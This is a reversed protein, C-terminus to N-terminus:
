AGLVRRYVALTADAAGEWSFQAAQAVARATVRVRDKTAAQWATALGDAIADIRMPDVLFAADGAVEPMSSAASTVTAAGCAMAEVVPLGFGEYLSVYAVVRAGTLLGALDESPVYGLRRIRDHVPSAEIAALISDHRWGMGGALVLRTAPPIRGSEALLEFAHILRRHNKRPELTGLALIFPLDEVGHNRTARVVESPPAPAFPQQPAYPIVFIRSRAVGTIRRVEAATALSPVIVADAARPGMAVLPIRAWRYWPHTLPRAIVSMDHVTLVVPLRRLFPAVGDTMHVIDADIALADRMAGTQLWLPYPGAARGCSPVGPPLGVTAAQRGILVLDPQTQHGALARAMAAAYVAVGAPRVGVTGVDFAVRM